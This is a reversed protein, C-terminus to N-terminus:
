GLKAYSSLFNSLDNLAQSEKQAYYSAFDPNSLRSLDFGVSQFSGGSVYGLDYIISNKITDIMEESEYDRAFKTKLSVDYFAPIVDRSGIACLAEIITGTKNPDEVTVPMCLLSAHGNVVTAYEDDETFKPFPLIGFEDDMSRLSQASSLGRDAFMARGVPFLDEKEERIKDLRMFVDDSNALDFYKSFIEVTKPTNLTITPIGRADKNYIRQGGTYLIQIPGFWDRTYYGFQDVDQSLVGDGNLDKSGQKVLKAFADFTWTGDKVMQYPFELGLDEFIRKNFFMTFAYQLRHTSIDGDLVYLHGNINCSDIIDKSWWEKSLDITEVENFNVLADQIAYQFAIRSHPLIIDFQDDGALITNLADSGNDTSSEINTIEINFLGKVTENRKYVADSIIDGTQEEVYQDARMANGSRTMIRFNYGEMDEVEIHSLWAGDADTPMYVETKKEEKKCAAVTFVTLAALLICAIKRLKM